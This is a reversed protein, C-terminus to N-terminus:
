PAHRDELDIEAQKLRAYDESTGPLHAFMGRASRREGVRGPEAARGGTPYRFGEGAQFRALWAEVQRKSEMDTAGAGNLEDRQQPSLSCVQTVVQELVDALRAPDLARRSLLDRVAARFPSADGAGVVAAGASLVAAAYTEPPVGAKEAAEKLAQELPPSLAIEM